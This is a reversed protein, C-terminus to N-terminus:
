GVALIKHLTRLNRSTLHREHARSGSAKGAASSLTAGKPVRWYVCGSGATVAETGGPEIAAGMAEAVARTVAPDDSFVVYDHHEDLSEFPYAAVAEEVAGRTLVQVVADYGFRDAYAAELVARLEDEARPDTLVVNGTALVTRVETCGADETCARLDAMAIRASRGVNIGRLLAVKRDSSSGGPGSTANM